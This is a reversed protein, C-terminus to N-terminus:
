IEKQKVAKGRLLSIWRLNKNFQAQLDVRSDELHSLLENAEMRKMAAKGLWDKKEQMEMIKQGITGQCIYRIITIPRTQGIRHLRHMAQEDVAANWWPEMMYARSAMTLSLGM